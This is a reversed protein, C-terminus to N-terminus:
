GDGAERLWEGIAPGLIKLGEGLTQVEGANPASPAPEGFVPPFRHSQRPNSFPEYGVTSPNAATWAFLCFRTTVVDM